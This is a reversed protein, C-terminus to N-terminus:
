VGNAVTIAEIRYNIPLIPLDESVHRMVAAEIEIQRERELTRGWEDLLQDVDDNAYGWVNAGRPNQPTRRNRGDIRPINAEFDTSIGSLDTTSFVYTPDSQVS